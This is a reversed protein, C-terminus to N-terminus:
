RLTSAVGFPVSWPLIRASISVPRAPTRKACGESCRLASEVQGLGVRGSLACFSACSDAFASLCGLQSANGQRGDIIPGGPFTGAGLRAAAGARGAGVRAPKSDRAHLLGQYPFWPMVGAHFVQAQIDVFVTDLGGAMQHLAQAAVADGGGIHEVAVRAPAKTAQPQFDVIVALPADVELAIYAAVPEMVAFWPGVQVLALLDHEGVRGKGM